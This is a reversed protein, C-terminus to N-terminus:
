PMVGEVTPPHWQLEEPVRDPDDWLLVLDRGAHDAAARDSHAAERQRFVVDPLDRLGRNRLVNELDARRAKRAASVRHWLAVPTGADLAAKLVPDQQPGCTRAYALAACLRERLVAPDFLGSAPTCEVWCIATEDYADGRAYLEKWTARWCERRDPDALRDLSRVVVPCVTGIETERDGIRMQLAEWDEDLMALPVLFEIVPPVPDEDPDFGDILRGVEVALRDRNWPEDAPVAQRGDSGEYKWGTVLLRDDLLDPELRLLVFTRRLEMDLAQLEDMEAVWRPAVANIWERLRDQAGKDDSWAAFRVLFGFLPMPNLPDRLAKVTSILDDPRRPLGQGIVDRTAERYLARLDKPAPASDLIAKLKLYEASTLLQGGFAAARVRGARSGSAFVLTDEGSRSRFWLHSPVQQTSDERRLQKFRDNIFDRLGDADPPWTDAPLADFAERLVQSFLGTKLADLNVAREGPSAALLVRQDREPEQRGETFAESPMRGEWGLETVLNLCADVFGLQQPHRAFTSSRMSKLLSSLNLNRKDLTTADAYILRREEEEIVGHGGWYLILLSSTESPLYRTFVDRVMAHTAAARVRYGYGQSQEEVEHANEPLPSVLLTIRDAPVGRTTLWRAFLCADLAPGDLRWENGAKYEEIGVVVAMTDVALM